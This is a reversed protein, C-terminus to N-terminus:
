PSLGGEKMERDIVNSNYQSAEHQKATTEQIHAAERAENLM